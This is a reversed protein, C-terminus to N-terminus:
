NTFSILPLDGRAVADLGSAAPLRSIRVAAFSTVVACGVDVTTDALNPIKTSSYLFGIATQRGDSASSGGGTVTAIATGTGSVTMQPVNTGARRGTFEVLLKGANGGSGVTVTIDGADLNSLAALGNALTTAGSSDAAITLASTTEGDFTVTTNGSSAPTVAQVENVRGAYPGLLGSSTIRGLVTGSPIYGNPYHVNATFASVDLTGGETKGHGIAGPQPLLWSRDEVQFATRLVSIDTM